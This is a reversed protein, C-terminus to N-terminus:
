EAQRWLVGSSHWISPPHLTKHCNHKAEVDADAVADVNAQGLWHADNAELQNTVITKAIEIAVQRRGSAAQWKGSAVDIM